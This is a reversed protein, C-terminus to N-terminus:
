RVLVAGALLSSISRREGEVVFSVMEAGASVTVDALRVGPAIGADALATLRLRSGEELRDVTVEGGPRVASLALLRREGDRAQAADVPRGHPCREPRGLSEWVREVADTDFGPALRRAQEHCEAISYGLSEVVFCELIRQTRLLRDAAARGGVTLLLEKHEGRRLLGEEELRAVMEGAAARSVGLLQAVHATLTPADAVAGCEVIPSTLADLALLYDDLSHSRREDSQPVVPLARRTRKVPTAAAELAAVSSADAVDESLNLARLAPVGRADLLRAQCSAACADLALVPRGERAAAVVQEIDDVVEALGRAALDAAVDDARVGSERAGHCPLLVPVKSPM